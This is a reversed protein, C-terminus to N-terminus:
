RRIQGDILLALEEEATRRGPPLTLINLWMTFTERDVKGDDMAILHAGYALARLIALLEEPARTPVGDHNICHWCEAIFLGWSM